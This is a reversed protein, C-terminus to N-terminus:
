SFRLQVKAKIKTYLPKSVIQKLQTDIIPLNSLENLIALMEQFRGSTYDLKLYQNHVMITNRIFNKKMQIKESNEKLVEILQGLANVANHYQTNEDM